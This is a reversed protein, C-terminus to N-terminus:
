DLEDEGEKKPTPFPEYNKNFTKATCCGAMRGAILPMPDLVWTVDGDPWDAVRVRAGDSKRRYFNPREGYQFGGAKMEAITRDLDFM